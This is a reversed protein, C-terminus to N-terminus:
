RTTGSIREIIEEAKVLTSNSKHFCFRILNKANSKHEESYFYSPPLGLLNHNRVLWEVFKADETGNYSSLDATKAIQSVDAIVYFAGDPVIPKM